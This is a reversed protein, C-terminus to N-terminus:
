VEANVKLIRLPLRMMLEGDYGIDISYIGDETFRLGQLNMVMNRTNFPIEKPMKVDFEPEIPMNAPDLSEGDENIINISLKHRGVDEQTFCFRMALACSPHVVPLARAALTDFTGSIVLKGNYDAAFDCLTAIQIDM